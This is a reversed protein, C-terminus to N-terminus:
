KGYKLHVVRANGKASVSVIYLNDYETDPIVGYLSTGTLINLLVNTTNSHGAVYVVQNRYKLLLTDALETLKVPDYIQTTLANKAAVPAATEKTRNYSTAYAGRVVTTHLVRALETAREQGATSLVPDTGTGSTEAHRTLIVTTTSDNIYDTIRITDKQVVYVTDKVIVTNVITEPDKACGYCTVLAILFLLRIKMQKCNTSPEHIM